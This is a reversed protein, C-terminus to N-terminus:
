AGLERWVFTSQAAVFNCKLEMLSELICETQRFQQHFPSTPSKKSLPLEAHWTVESEQVDLNFLFRHFSVTDVIKLSVTWLDQQLTVYGDRQCCVFMPLRCLDSQCWPWSLWVAQGAPSGDWGEARHSRPAWLRWLGLHVRAESLGAGASFM